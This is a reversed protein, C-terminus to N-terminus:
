YVEIKRSFSKNGVRANVIYFGNNLNLVQIGKSPVNEVTKILQGLSNYVSLQITKEQFFNTHMLGDSYYMDGINEKV